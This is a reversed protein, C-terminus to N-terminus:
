VLFFLGVGGSTLLWSVLSAPLVIGLDVVLAPPMALLWWKNPEPVEPDPEFRYLLAQQHTPDRRSFLIFSNGMAYMDAADAYLYIAAPQEMVLRKLRVERAESRLPRLDFVPIPKLGTLDAALPPGERLEDRPLINSGMPHLFAPVLAVHFQAPNRPPTYRRSLPPRRALEGEMTVILTEPGLWAGTIGQIDDFRPPLPGFAQTHVYRSVCGSQLALVIALLLYQSLRLHRQAIM